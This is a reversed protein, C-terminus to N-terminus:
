AVKRFIQCKSESDCHRFVLNEPAVRFMTVYIVYVKVAAWLMYCTDYLYAIISLIRGSIFSVSQRM